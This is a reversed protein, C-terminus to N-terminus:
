AKHLQGDDEFLEPAEPDMTTAQLNTISHRSWPSVVLLPQAYDFTPLSSRRLHAAAPEVTPRQRKSLNLIPISTQVSEGVEGLRVLKVAPDLVM